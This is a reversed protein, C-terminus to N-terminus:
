RRRRRAAARPFVLVSLEDRDAGVLLVDDILENAAEILALRLAGINV